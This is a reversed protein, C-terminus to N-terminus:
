AWRCKAAGGSNHSAARLLRNLSTESKPSKHASTSRQVLRLNIVYGGTLSRAPGVAKQPRPRIDKWKIQQVIGYTEPFGSPPWRSKPIMRLSYVDATYFCRRESFASLLYLVIQANLMMVWAIM